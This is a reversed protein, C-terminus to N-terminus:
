KAFEYDDINILAFPTDAKSLMYGDKVTVSKSETVVPDKWWKKPVGKVDSGEAIVAGQSVVEFAVAVVDGYREVAKPHLYAVSIHKNGAEIDAYRVSTKFITYVKAGEVTRLSMAYYQFTLEDIWDPATDYNVALRYWSKAPVRGRNINTKYEPTRLENKNGLGSFTKVRLINSQRSPAASNATRSQQASVVGASFVLGGIVVMTLGSIKLQFKM